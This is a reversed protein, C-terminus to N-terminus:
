ENIPATAWLRNPPNVHSPETEFLNRVSDRVWTRYRLDRSSRPIVWREMAHSAIQEVNLLSSTDPEGIGTRLLEFANECLCSLFVERRIGHRLIDGDM